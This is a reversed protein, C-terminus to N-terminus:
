ILDDITPISFVKADAFDVLQCGRDAWWAPWCFGLDRYESFGYGVGYWDEPDTEIHAWQKEATDCIDDSWSPCMPIQQKYAERLFAECEEASHCVVAIQKDRLARWDINM